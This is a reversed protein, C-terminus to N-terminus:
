EKLLKLIRCDYKYQEALSLKEEALYHTVPFDTGFLIKGKPVYRKIKKIYNEDCFAVDCYVNKHKEIIKATVELPASHALIFNINGFKDFFNEFREPSCCSEVGTHILVSLKHENAYSFADRLLKIHNQKQLDWKHSFPHIKIGCYNFKEMSKEIDIKQEAYEPVLWFYPHVKLISSSFKQAYEIEEEIRFLEVDYRCSSTSSYRAETIEFQEANRSIAEFVEHSDYYTEYFQGIHIHYDIM